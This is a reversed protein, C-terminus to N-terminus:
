NKQKRGPAGLATGVSRSEGLGKVKIKKGKHKEQKGDKFHMSHINTNRFSAALIGYYFVMLKIWSPQFCYLIKFIMKFYLLDFEWFTLSLNLMTHLRARNIFSFGCHAQTESGCLHEIQPFPVNRKSSFFM